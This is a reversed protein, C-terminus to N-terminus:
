VWVPPQVRDHSMRTYAFEHPREISTETSFFRDSYKRNDWLFHYWEFVSYRLLIRIDLWGREGGLDNQSYSAHLLLIASFGTFRDTVAPSVPHQHEEDSFEAMQVTYFSSWLAPKLTSSPKRQRSKQNQACNKRFDTFYRLGCSAM